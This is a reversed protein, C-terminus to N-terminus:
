LRELDLPVNKFYRDNIDRVTTPDSFRQLYSKEKSEPLTQYLKHQYLLDIAKFRNVIEDYHLFTKTKKSRIYAEMYKYIADIDGICSDPINQIIELSHRISFMSKINRKPLGSLVMLLSIFKNNFVEDVVLDRTDYVFANIANVFNYSYSTDVKDTVKKKFVVTNPTVVPLQYAYQSSSIVINPFNNNFENAILDHIIVSPEVTGIKLYIDPLYPCLVKLLDLNYDVAEMIKENSQMRLRYHSNYEACFRTNNSSMNRSFVLIITSQVNHRTRFYSRLHACYNIITSSIVNYDQIKLYRFAPLLMQNLDIFIKVEDANSNAFELAVLNRLASYKIFQGYLVYEIPTKEDHIM